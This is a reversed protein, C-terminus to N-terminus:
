IMLLLVGYSQHCFVERHAVGLYRLLRQLDVTIQRLWATRRPLELGGYSLTTLGKNLLVLVSPTLSTNNFAGEGDLFVSLATEQLNLAMEVRVMLQHRAKEVSKGTHYTNEYCHLPMIALIEDRLFRQVLV